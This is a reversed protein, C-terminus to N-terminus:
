VNGRNYPRSNCQYLHVDIGSWSGTDPTITFQQNAGDNVTVVGSPSIAGNSGASATITHSGLAVKEDMRNGAADYAYEIVTGDSYEAKTIRDLNDYTYQVTESFALISIFLSLFIGIGFLARIKNKM